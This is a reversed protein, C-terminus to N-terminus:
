NNLVPVRVLISDDLRVILRSFRDRGIVGTTAFRPNLPEVKAQLHAKAEAPVDFVVRVDPEGDGDIDVRDDVHRPLSNVPSWDLQVFPTEQQWMHPHVPRHVAITYGAAQISRVRPGGSYIEDVHLGMEAFVRTFTGMLVFPVLVALVVTAVAGAYGLWARPKM